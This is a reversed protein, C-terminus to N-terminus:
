TADGIAGHRLKAWADHPAKFAEAVCGDHILAIMVADEDDREVALVHEALYHTVPAQANIAAVLEAARDDSYDTFVANPDAAVAARGTKTAQDYTVACKPAAEAAHAALPTLRMGGICVMVAALSGLRAVAGRALRLNLMAKM